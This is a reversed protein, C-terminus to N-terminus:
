DPSQACLEAGRKWEMSQSDQQFFLSPHPLDSHEENTYLQLLAPVLQLDFRLFDLYVEGTLTDKFFHQLPTRGEVIVDWENVRQPYHTLINFM